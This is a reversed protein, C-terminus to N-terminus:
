RPVAEPQRRPLTLPESWHTARGAVADDTLGTLPPFELDDLMADACPVQGTVTKAITRHRRLHGIPLAQIGPV